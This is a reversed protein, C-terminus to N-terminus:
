LTDNKRFVVASGSKINICLHGDESYFTVRGCNYFDNNTEILREWQTSKKGTIKNIPINIEKDHEATNIATVVADKDNFRGYCVLDEGAM